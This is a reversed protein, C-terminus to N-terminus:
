LPLTAADPTLPSANLGLIVGCRYTNINAYRM